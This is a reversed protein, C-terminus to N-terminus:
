KTSKKKEKLLSDIYIKANNLMEPSDKYLQLAKERLKPLQKDLEQKGKQAAKNIQRSAEEKFKKWENSQFFEKTKQVTHDLIKKTTKTSIHIWYDKQQYGKIRCNNPLRKTNPTDLVALIKTNKNKG